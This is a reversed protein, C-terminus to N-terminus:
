WQGAICHQFVADDIRIRIRKRIVTDTDRKDRSSSGAVSSQKELQGHGANSPPGLDSPRQRRTRGVPKASSGGSAAVSGEGAAAPGAAVKRDKDKQEVHLLEDADEDEELDVQFGEAPGQTAAMSAVRSSPACLLM